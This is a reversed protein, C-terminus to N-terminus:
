SKQFAVTINPFVQSNKYVLVHKSKKTTSMRLLKPRLLWWAAVQAESLSLQDAQRPHHQPLGRHQQQIFRRRRDIGTGLLLGMPRPPNAMPISPPSPSPSPSQTSIRFQNRFDSFTSPNKKLILSSRVVLVVLFQINGPHTGFIPGHLVRPIVGPPERIKVRETCGTWANLTVSELFHLMGVIRPPPTSYCIMEVYLFMM